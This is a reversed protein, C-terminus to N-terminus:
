DPAGFISCRTHTGLVEVVVGGAPVAAAATAALAAADITRGEGDISRFGAANLTTLRGDHSAMSGAKHCEKLAVAVAPPTVTLAKAVGTDTMHFM